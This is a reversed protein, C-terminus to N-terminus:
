KASPVFRPPQPGIRHNGRFYRVFLKAVPKQMRGRIYNTGPFRFSRPRGARFLISFQPFLYFSVPQGASEPSRVSRSQSKQSVAAAGLYADGRQKLLENAETLNIYGFYKTKIDM